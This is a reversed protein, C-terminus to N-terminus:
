KELLTLKTCAISPIREFDGVGIIDDIEIKVKFIRCTKLRSDSAWSLMKAGSKSRCCHLGRYISRDIQEDRTLVTSNRGSRNIGYQYKQGRYPSIFVGQDFAKSPDLLKYAFIHTRKANRARRKVDLLKRKSKETLDLCM